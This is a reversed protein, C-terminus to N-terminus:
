RRTRRPDVWTSALDAGSATPDARPPRHLAAALRGSSGAALAARPPRPLRRNRQRGHMYDVTTLGASVSGGAVLGKAVVLQARRRGGATGVM